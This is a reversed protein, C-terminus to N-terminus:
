ETNRLAERFGSSSPFCYLVEGAGGKKEVEQKKGKIVTKERDYKPKFFVSLKYSDILINNLEWLTNDM